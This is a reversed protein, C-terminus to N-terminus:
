YGDRPYQRDSLWKGSVSGHDELRRRRRSRLVLGLAVLLFASAAILAHM